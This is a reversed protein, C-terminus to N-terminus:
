EEEECFNAILRVLDGISIKKDENFDASQYQENNKLINVLAKIDTKDIKHDGNVDGIVPSSNPIVVLDNMNVSTYSDDAFYILINGNGSPDFKITMLDKILSGDKQKIVDDAMVHGYFLLGLCLLLTKKM